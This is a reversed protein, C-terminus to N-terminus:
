TVKHRKVRGSVLQGLVQEPSLPGEFAYEGRQLKREAHSLRGLLYFWFGNSVVGAGELARGVASLTEGPAIEVDHELAGGYPAHVFGQFRWWLFAGGGTAALVALLLLLGLARLLKM